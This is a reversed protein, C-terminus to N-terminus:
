LPVCLPPSFFPLGLWSSPLVCPFLVCQFCRFSWWPGWVELALASIRKGHLLRCRLACAFDLPSSLALPSSYGSRLNWLLLRLSHPLPGRSRSASRPLPPPAACLLRPPPNSPLSVSSPVSARPSFMASRVGLFLFALTSALGPQEAGCEISSFYRYSSMAELFHILKM